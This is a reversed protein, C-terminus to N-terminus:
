FIQKGTRILLLFTKENEILANYGTRDFFLAFQRFIKIVDYKNQVNILAINDIKADDNVLYLFLAKAVIEYIYTKSYKDDDLFKSCDLIGIKFEAGSVNEINFNCIILNYLNRCAIEKEENMFKETNKFFVYDSKKGLVSHSAVVSDLFSITNKLKVPIYIVYLTGENYELNDINKYIKSNNHNCFTNNIGKGSKVYLYGNSVSIVNNLIQLGYHFAVNESSSLYDKLPQNSENLFLDSLKIKHEENKQKVNKVYDNIADINIKDIKGEFSKMIKADDIQSFYFKSDTLFGNSTNYNEVIRKKVNNYFKNIVCDFEDFQFDTLLIEIFYNVDHFDEDSNIYFGQADKKTRFRFSLFGCGRIENKGVVHTIVNEALQVIGQSYDVCLEHINSITLLSNIKYFFNQDEIAIYYLTSLFVLVEMCNDSNLLDLIEDNLICSNINTIRNIYDNCLTLIRLKWKNELNPEINTTCYNSILAEFSEETLPIIPVLKGAQPEKEYNFALSRWRIDDLKINEYNQAKKSINCYARIKRFIDSTNSNDTQMKAYFYLLHSLRFYDRMEILSYRNTNTRVSSVLVSYNAKKYELYELLLLLYHFDSIDSVQDVIVEFVFRQKNSLFFANKSISHLFYSNTPVNRTQLNKELVKEISYSDGTYSFFAVMNSDKVDFDLSSKFKNILNCFDSRTCRTRILCIYDGNNLMFNDNNM